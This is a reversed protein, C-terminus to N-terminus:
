FVVSLTPAANGDKAAYLSGTEVQGGVRLDSIFKFICEYHADLPEDALMPTALLYVTPNYSTVKLSLYIPKGCMAINHLYNFEEDTITVQEGTFLTTIEDSTLFSFDAIAYGGKIAM